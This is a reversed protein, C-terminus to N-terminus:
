LLAAPEREVSILFSLSSSVSLVRETHYNLSANRIVSVFILHEHVSSSAEEYLSHAVHFHEPQPM